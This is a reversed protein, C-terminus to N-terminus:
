KPSLNSIVWFVDDVSLKWRQQAVIGNNEASLIVGWFFLAALVSLLGNKGPRRLNELNGGASLHETSPKYTASRARAIWAAVCAPRGVTGLKGKEEYSEAREFHAWARVLQQWAPGLDKSVLMEYAKLFWEPSGSLEAPTTPVIAMTAEDAHTEPTVAQSTAATGTPAPLPPARTSKVHKKPADNRINSGVNVEATGATDSHRRKRANVKPLIRPPELTSMPSTPPAPAPPFYTSLAPLPQQPLVPTTSVTPASTPTRAIRALGVSGEASDLSFEGDDAVRLVEALSVTTSDSLAAARCEEVTYCKKLFNGFVPMVYEKYARRESRGFNMKVNGPTEGSHFSMVNLRGQDAPEPGGVLLTAKWGTHDTILDLIPQIFSPLGGLIRQRDNPSQSPPANLAEEITAVAETHEEIAKREYEKREDQTLEEFGEKYVRMRLAARKNAPVNEDNSATRLRPKKIPIGALKALLIAMPDECGLEVRRTPNNAKAHQYILRRSIQEKRFKLAKLQENYAAEAIDFTEKDLLAEDPPLLDDDPANDDVQALWEESPEVNHELSTPYRKFYRRQIDAVTDAVHNGTVAAAYLDMQATLFDKRTGQFAGPNVM